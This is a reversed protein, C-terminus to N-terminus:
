WLALAASPLVFLLEYEFTARLSTWFDPDSALRQYNGLGIWHPSGLLSWQTFSAALTALMPILGFVLFLIVNPAILLYWIVYRRRRSGPRPLEAGTVTPAAQVDV